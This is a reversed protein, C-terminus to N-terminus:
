SYNLVFFMVTVVWLLLAPGYSAAVIKLGEDTHTQLAKGLLYALLLWYAIEFVNLAQFPYVFWPSLGEYGVLNLASLPYFYQIDELSYDTQVFYFWGLKAVVVLLFVFEAKVAIHWLAKFRIEKGFFFAGMYLVTAILTTKIALFVPVFGYGVWEWKKQLDLYATVQSVTLNESLSNYVLEELELLSKTVENLGLTLLCLLWFPIYIRSM